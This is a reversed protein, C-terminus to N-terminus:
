RFSTGILYASCISSNFLRVITWQLTLRNIRPLCSKMSFARLFVTLTIQRREM